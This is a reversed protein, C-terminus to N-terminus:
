CAALRWCCAQGSSTIGKFLFPIIIAAAIVPRLLRLVTVKRRGMDAALVIALIVLNLFGSAPM